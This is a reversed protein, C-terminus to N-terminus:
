VEDCGGYVGRFIILLILTIVVVIGGGNEYMMDAILVCSFFTIMCYITYKGEMM